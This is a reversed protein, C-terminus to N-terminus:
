LYTYSKGERCCNLNSAANFIVANVNSLTVCLFVKNESLNAWVRLFLVIFVVQKCKPNNNDVFAHVPVGKSDKFEM